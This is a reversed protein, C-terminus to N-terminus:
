IKNLFELIVFCIKTFDFYLKLGKLPLGRTERVNVNENTSGLYVDTQQDIMTTFSGFSWEGVLLYGVKNFM